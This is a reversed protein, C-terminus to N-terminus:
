DVLSRFVRDASSKGTPTGSVKELDGLCFLLVIIFIFAIVGSLATFLWMAQPVTRKANKTEDAMHLLSDFAGLPFIVTLLGVSWQIGENKWGSIGFFSTNFVFEATSRRAMTALVVVVVILLLVHLIASVIELPAILHRAYVNCLVPIALSAYALLTTHWGHPVYTEKCLTICGQLILGM